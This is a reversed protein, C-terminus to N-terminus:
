GAHRMRARLSRLLANYFPAGEFYPKIARILLVVVRSTQTFFRLADEGRHLHIQPFPLVV